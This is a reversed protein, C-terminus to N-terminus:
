VISFQISLLKNLESYINRIITISKILKQKIEIDYFIILDYKKAVDMKIDFM